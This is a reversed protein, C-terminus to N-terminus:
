GISTESWGISKFVLLRIRERNMRLLRFRERNMLNLFCLSCREPGLKRQTLLSCTRTKTLILLLCNFFLRGDLNPYLQPVRERRSNRLESSGHKPTLVGSLSTKQISKETLFYSKFMLRLILIVLDRKRELPGLRSLHTLNPLMYPFCGELSKTTPPLLQNFLNWRSQTLKVPLYM